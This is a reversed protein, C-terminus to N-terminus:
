LFDIISDDESVYTVFYISGVDDFNDMKKKLVVKDKKRLLM